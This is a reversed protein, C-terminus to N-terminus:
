SSATCKEERLHGQLSETVRAGNRLAGVSVLKEFGFKARVDDTARIVGLVSRRGQEFFMDYQGDDHSVFPATLRLERVRVRRHLLKSMAARVAPILYRDQDTPFLLELGHSECMGDSYTLKLTARPCSLCHLRLSYALQQALYVAAAALEEPSDTEQPFRYSHRIARHLATPKVPENCDGNAHRWLATGAEGFLLHLPEEGVALLEGVRNIGFDRLRERTASGVGPLLNLPIQQLFEAESGPPIRLIHGPKALWTALRAVMKNAGIGISVPLGMEELFSRALRQGWQQLDGGFLRDCGTIDLYFDDLGAKEVVPAEGWLFKFSRQSYVEYFSSDEQIVTATPVRRLAMKLPMGVHAGARRAEYSACAVLGRGGATHGVIVPKGSLEPQRMREVSVAFCDIDLHLITREQM